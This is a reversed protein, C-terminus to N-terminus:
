SSVERFGIRKDRLWKLDPGGLIGNSLRSLDDETMKEIFEPLEYTNKLKTIDLGPVYKVKHPKSLSYDTDLFFLINWQSRLEQFEPKNSTEVLFKFCEFRLKGLGIRLQENLDKTKRYSSVQIAELVEEMKNLTRQSIDISNPSGVTSTVTHDDGDQDESETMTDEHSTISPTLQDNIEPEGDSLVITELSQQLKQITEMMIELQSGLRRAEAKVSDLVAQQSQATIENTAM